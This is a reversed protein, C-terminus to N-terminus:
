PLLVFLLGAITLIGVFRSITTGGYEKAIETFQEDSFKDKQAIDSFIHRLTNETRINASLDPEFCQSFSRDFWLFLRM